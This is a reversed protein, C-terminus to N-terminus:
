DRPRDFASLHTDRGAFSPDADPFDTTAHLGRSERRRLACEIILGAVLTINRLEVLHESVTTRKYFDEVEAALLEIRRQARELRLTSRVIGVFDWMLRRVEDRNHSILVWEENNDTGSDDWDPVAAGDPTEQPEDLTTAAARAAFVLAELLSNSALRNAGHLGTMATEGCVLLGHISSRAGLDSAVGGCVYHAAPVVPVLDRTIDVALALCRAHINPFRQRVDDADLHRLDLYVCADGSRKLESDIARAVIDRPALELREDYRGMFREGRGNRLMAGHGRVAESILFSNADPHALTTPHFQISEMNAIDAGARFAMAIGDGTAIGPNTTHLYVQGCGGTSLVTTAALFTKVVGADNDLVYAGWCHVAGRRVPPRGRLNHETILDIAVHNELVTVNPHGMVRAILAREIEAGTLDKAHVIRHHSHGGERGLDFAGDRMTFRVGLDVLESVLPPGETVVARVADEHCLGAGAVLTDRIHYDPADTREFVSAIGGQAYNTNSEMTQKKTVLIVRRRDAVRLTYFLGAIGSGIVLVDSSIVL